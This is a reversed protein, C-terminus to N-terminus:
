SAVVPGVAALAAPGSGYPKSCSAAPTSAAMPPGVVVLTYVGAPLAAVNLTGRTLTGTALELGYANLIHYQSGDPIADGRLHLQDTAPNPELRSAGLSEPTPAAAVTAALRAAGSRRTPRPTARPCARRAM